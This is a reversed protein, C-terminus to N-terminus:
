ILLAFHTHLRICGSFCSLPYFSSSPESIFLWEYFVILKAGEHAYTVQWFFPHSPLQLVGPHEREYTTYYMFSFYNPPMELLAM